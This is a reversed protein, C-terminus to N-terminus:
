WLAEQSLPRLRCIISQLPNSHNFNVLYGDSGVERSVLERVEEIQAAFRVGNIRVGEIGPVPHFPVEQFGMTSLRVGSIRDRSWPTSAEAGLFVSRQGNDIGDVQFERSAFFRVAEAGVLGAAGTIIATPM